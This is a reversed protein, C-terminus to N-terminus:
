DTTTLSIIVPTLILTFDMKLRAHVYVGARTTHFSHIRTWQVVYSNMFGQYHVSGIMVKHLVYM